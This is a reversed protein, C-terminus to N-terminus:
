WNKAQLAARAANHGCMGHVGAGPPTASSCLYTGPVGTWYPNLSLRPRGVIQRATNAGASIDGGVYNANYSQFQQVSRTHIGVIRERFGPAFREIQNVVLDTVDDPHNNPVHAYAWVPHIDGVSRSPDALFQQGVLVIPRDTMQGRAVSGEAQILEKMTGGLHLTGARRAADNTWPVVDTVDGSSGRVAFDVKFAAPGYAYRRYAKAIRSPQREGLIRTAANPAVDLMVLDADAVESYDSITRGTEVKGGLSLLVSAMANTIAQSGGRAVPWGHAHAAATLMVGVASSMPATLSGFLHAAVGGFLAQAQPTRLRSSLVSAPLMAKVGFRALLLPHSPVRVLPQFTDLVLDDFHESAYGFLRRWSGGDIGLGECTRDLDRWLIGASGDDLPHVLDIEPWAWHLGHSGLDFEADLERLFPSALATPHFASCDDHLLGDVIYESSRTGGGIRDAAEVVRVDIGNRALEIAAALGNPGSGVVVATAM